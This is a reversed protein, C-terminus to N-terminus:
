TFLAAFDADFLASAPRERRGPRLARGWVFVGAGCSCEPGVRVDPGWVFLHADETPAALRGTPDAAVLTADITRLENLLQSRVESLREKDLLLGHAQMAMVAPVLPWVRTHWHTDMGQEVLETRMPQVCMATAVCDWGNYLALQDDPIQLWKHSTTVQARRM